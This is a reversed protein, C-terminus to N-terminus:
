EAAEVFDIVDAVFRDTTEIFPSHGIGEYEIIRADPMREVLPPLLAPPAAGDESGVLFLLPLDLQEILASNDLDRGQMARRAYSPMMAILSTTRATWAASMEEATLFRAFIGAAAINEGTDLASAMRGMRVIPNDPDPNEPMPPPGILGGASGVLIMGRAADTGYHEIFDMAVFGGFSWGLLVPRAIGTAEIVAQIDNAWITDAAYDEKRWPKGSGAHGRLDVAVLRYRQMEPHEIVEKFSLMGQGFGHILLLPTGEPDGATAVMLPVGGDPATVEQFTAGEIGQAQGAAPPIMAIALAATAALLHRRM